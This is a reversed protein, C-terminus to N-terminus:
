RMKTKEFFYFFLSRTKPIAWPQIFNWIFLGNGNGSAVVRVEELTANWMFKIKPGKTFAKKCEETLFFVSFLLHILMLSFLM